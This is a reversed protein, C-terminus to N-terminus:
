CSGKHGFDPFLRYYDVIISPLIRRPSMRGIISRLCPCFLVPLFETQATRYDITIINQPSSTRKCTLEYVDITIADSRCGARIAAGVRVFHEGKATGCQPAGARGIPTRDWGIELLM